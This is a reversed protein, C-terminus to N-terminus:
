IDIKVKKKEKFNIKSMSYNISTQSTDMGRAHFIIKIM